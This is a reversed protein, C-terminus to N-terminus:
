GGLVAQARSVLKQAYAPDPAWRNNLDAITRVSGRLAPAIQGHRPNRQIMALQEPSAQDDRLAYALLQGVHAQVAAEWTDFSLGGEEHVGLGAPNRRPRASWSSTLGGTEFIMQIAALMPDVGVPPAYQWYYNVITAGDNTYESGAPLRAQIFRIPQDPPGSPPGLIPSQETLPTVAAVAPAGGGTFTQPAGGGGQLHDWAQQIVQIYFAESIANGPCEPKNYDRHSSIGGWTLKAPNACAFSTGSQVRGPSGNPYMYRLEFTGLRQKLAAVAHGVLAAVAPPWTQSTYDGVVEIGISYHMTGGNNHSNGWMAHIGPERMPTFLWIYRDDIFLHPGRDWRIKDRYYGMLGDLLAKRKNYIAMTDLGAEGTSWQALTPVATHHLVVFDPPISGFDYPLQGGGGQLYLSFDDATLGQGVYLFEGGLVGGTPLGGQDADEDHPLWTSYDIPEHSGPLITTM